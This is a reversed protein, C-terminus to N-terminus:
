KSFQVGFLKRAIDKDGDKLMFSSALIQAKLEASLDQLGNEGWYRIVYQVLAQYERAEAVVKSMEGVAGAYRIYVQTSPDHKDLDELKSKMFASFVEPLKQTIERFEDMKTQVYETPTFNARILAAYLDDDEFMQEPKINKTKAISTASDKLKLTDRFSKLAAEPSITLALLKAILERDEQEIPKLGTQTTKPQVDVLIETLTFGLYEQAAQALNSSDMLAGEIIGATVAIRGELLPISTSPYIEPGTQRERELDMWQRKAMAEALARAESPIPEHDIIMATSNYHKGPEPAFSTTVIGQM